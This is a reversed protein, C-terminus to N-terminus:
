NKSTISYPDSAVETTKNLLQMTNINFYSLFGNRGCNGTHHPVPGNTFTNRNVVILRQNLEDIALGHPQYGVKYNSVAFSNIDIASVSGLIKPNTNPDLLCSVYLKNRIRDVLMELPNVGTTISNLFVDGATQMVRVENSTQCSVFYKSGDPSFVIEHPDFSGSTSIAATGAPALVVANVNNFATDLKYIYNGSQKTVYITDNTKNLTIGHADSFGGYNHLLKMNNLDVVAIRSNNQWSACYAKSDDNSIVFTNWNNFPQGGFKGLDTQAVLEDTLTSFKQIINNNTFIVYWYKEDHSLKIMHPSEPVSPLNGVTIYGMPLQTKSDIVTVVDCGQNLVYYKKRSLNDAWMIKGNIDPAGVDIWHKITKVEEASLPSANLPMTPLNKPGLDEYTNIFYCLSSFDSRYPIVVSGNTSGEFLSTYSSLNLNAAAGASTTNHCGSTACKYNMIRGIDTPYDGYEAAIVDKTCSTFVSLSAVTFFVLISIVLKM